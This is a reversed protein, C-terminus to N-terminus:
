DPARPPRLLDAAQHLAELPGDARALLVARDASPPEAKPLCGAPPGPRQEVSASTSACGSRHCSERFQGLLALRVDLPSVAASDADLTAVGRGSDLESNAGEPTASAGADEFPGPSGDAMRAYWPNLYNWLWGGNVPRPALTLRSPAAPNQLGVPLTLARARAPFGLLILLCVLFLLSRLQVRCM